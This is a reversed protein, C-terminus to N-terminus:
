CSMKKNLAVHWPQFFMHQVQVQHTWLLEIKSTCVKECESSADKYPHGYSFGPLEVRM